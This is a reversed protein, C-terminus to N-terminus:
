RYFLKFIPSYKWGDYPPTIGDMQSRLISPSVDYKFAYSKSSCTAYIATFELYLTHLVRQMAHSIELVATGHDISTNGDLLQKTYALYNLELYEVSPLGPSHEHQSQLKLFRNTVPSQKNEM